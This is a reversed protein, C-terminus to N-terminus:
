PAFIAAPAIRLGPFTPSEFTEGVHYTRPPGAPNEALYYVTVTEAEPDAIWYEPIGHVAYLKRKVVLDLARNASPIEIVLDPAGRIGEPVIRDAHNTAVFLLDPQPADVESLMVDLPAYFVRGLGHARRGARLGGGM